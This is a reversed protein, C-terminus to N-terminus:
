PLLGYPAWRRLTASSLSLYQQRKYVDLHTYSVPAVRRRLKIGSLVARGLLFVTGAAWCGGALLMWDVAPGQEPQMDVALGAADLVQVAQAAAEAPTADRVTEAAAALQQLGESEPRPLTIPVLGDPVAFRLGVALWVLCLLWGPARAHRLLACM